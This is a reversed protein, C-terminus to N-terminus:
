MRVLVGGFVGINHLTNAMVSAGAAHGLYSLPGNKELAPMMGTQLARAHLHKAHNKNKHM